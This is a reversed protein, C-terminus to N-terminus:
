HEATSRQREREAQRTKREHVDRDPDVVFAWIFNDLLIFAWVITLYYFVQHDPLLVANAVGLAVNAVVFLVLHRWFKTRAPRAFRDVRRREDEAALSTEAFSKPDPTGDTM